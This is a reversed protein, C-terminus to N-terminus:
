APHWPKSRAGLAGRRGAVDALIAAQYQSAAKVLEPSVREIDRRIPPLSKKTM